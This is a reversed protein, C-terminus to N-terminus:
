PQLFHDCHSETSLESTICISCVAANALTDVRESSIRGIIRGQGGGGRRGLRSAEPTAPRRWPLPWSLVFWARIVAVDASLGCGSAIGSLMYLYSM